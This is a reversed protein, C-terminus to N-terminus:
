ATPSTLDAKELTGMGVGTEIKLITGPAIAGKAPAVASASVGSEQPKSFRQSEIDQARGALAKKLADERMQKIRRLNIHVKEKAQQLKIPSVLKKYLVGQLHDFEHQFIRATLGEFEHEKLIGKIDQYQVKIKAPRKVKLYLGPCSLCGEVELSTEQSREVIKPNVVVEVQQGVGMVFISYKLGVQNSSLGIGGGRIMTEIMSIAIYQLDGQPNTFDWAETPQKLKDSYEDTLELQEFSVQQGGMERTQTKAPNPVFPTTM